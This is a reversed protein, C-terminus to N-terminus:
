NKVDAMWSKDNALVWGKNAVYIDILELEEKASIILEELQGFGIEKEIADEDETSEAVSLRYQATAEVSKRYAADSPMVKVAELITKQTAIFNVRAAYDVPVGVLGTSTKSVALRRLTARIAAM